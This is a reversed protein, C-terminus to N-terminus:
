KITGKIQKLDDQIKKIEISRVFHIYLYFANDCWLLREKDSDFGYERYHRPINLAYKADDFLASTCEKAKSKKRRELDKYLRALIAEKHKLNKEVRFDLFTLLDLGIEHEVLPLVSDIDYNRKVFLQQPLETREDASGEYVLYNAKELFWKIRDLVIISHDRLSTTGGHHVVTFDYSNHQLWVIYNYLFNLMLLRKLSVEDVATSKDFNIGYDEFFLDLTPSSENLPYSTITGEIYEYISDAGSRNFIRERVLELIRDYEVKSDFRKELDFISISKM